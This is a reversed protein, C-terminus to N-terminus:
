QVNKDSPDDSDKKSPTIGELIFGCVVTAAWFGWPVYMLGVQWSTLYTTTHHGVSPEAFHQLYVHGTREDPVQPCILPYVIVIAIEFLISAVCIARLWQRAKQIQVTTGWDLIM